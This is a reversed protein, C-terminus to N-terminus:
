KVLTISGLTSYTKGTYWEVNVKYAYIGPKAPEGFRDNGDWGNKLSKTRFIVQGWRDFITMEYNSIGRGKPAYIENLDDGDPTFSTPLFFTEQEFVKITVIATDICGLQNEALLMIDFTGSDPYIAVPNRDRTSSQGNGFSWHWLTYFRSTNVLQITTDPMVLITTDPYFSAEPYPIADIYEKILLTDTCGFNNTVILQVDYKGPNPYKTIASTVDNSISDPDGGEFTWLYNKISGDQPTSLNGDFYVPVTTCVMTDGATVFGANPSPNITIYSFLTLADTCGYQNAVQLTINYTGPTLFPYAPNQLTSSGVGDGFNWDWTTAGISQDFFQVAVSDCAIRPNASLNATPFPWVTVINPYEITDSFITNDAVMKVSYTGPTTYNHTQNATGAVLGSGDGFDWQWNVPAGVTTIDTFTVSNSGCIPNQTFSFDAVVVPPLIINVPTTCNAQCGFKDTIEVTATYLGTGGYQHVAISDFSSGGDGFTWFFQYPGTGVTINTGFTTNGGLYAASVSCTLQPIPHVYITIPASTVPNPQPCQYNSTLQCTIQDGDALNANTYTNSNGVNGGNLFWNYAPLSGGNVGIAGFTVTEQGCLDNRTSSIYVEPTKFPVVYVVFTDIKSKGCCSSTTQLTVYYRGETNFVANATQFGAGSLTNPTAGGGFNWDYNIANYSSTFSANTGPCISDSASNITPLYPTGDNVINAFDTFIYPVGNVMLTITHKGITTYQITAIQGQYSLPLSGGDFFWTILGTANTSFTVDSWTCGTSKITIRPEVPANMNTINASTGAPDEYIDQSVGPSGNGGNGGNGGTGGDGGDAGCGISGCPGGGNGGSGAFGGYGGPFGGFGGTGPASATVICDFINGGAANADVYIGFSAGGGTGGSAGTGGAGGEGGGGGGAGAGCPPQIIPDTGGHAGGGGGGGGGSGDEGDVGNQGDGPQFFGGSFTPVGNIGDLGNAGDCGDAGSTGNNSPGGTNVGIIGLYSCNQDAAPLLNDNGQGFNGPAGGCLGVGVQGPNGNPYIGQIYNISISPPWVTVTIQIEDPTGQDGGDGGNGGAGGAGTNGGLGGGNNGPGCENGTGGNAGNVGNSGDVGPLGSIGNSGKGSTIKCRIINYNSCGSLYLSYNSVGAGPADDSTITLDLLTFGSQNIAQLGVVRSPAPLPNSSNRHIITPTYNSKEWTTADFGGEITIGSPINLENTLTYTGNALRLLSTGGAALANTFSMPSVPTGSGSGTPTVYYINCQQATVVIPM